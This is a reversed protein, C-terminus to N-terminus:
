PASPGAPPSTRVSGYIRAAAMRGAPTTRACTLGWWIRSGTAMRTWRRPRTITPVGPRADVVLGVSDSGPVGTSGTVTLTIVHTGVALTDTTATVNGDGDPAATGLVGDVDSEWAVVLAAEGAPDAVLGEFSISTGEAFVDGENPLTISASPAELALVEIAVSDDTSKGDPDTALVSLLHPGVSLQAQGSEGDVALEGDVDSTWVITLQDPTEADDTVASIDIPAQEYYVGDPTPSVIAITPPARLAREHEAAPIWACGSLALLIAPPLSSRLM